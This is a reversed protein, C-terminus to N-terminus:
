HVSEEAAREEREHDDRGQDPQRQLRPWLAFVVVLEVDVNTWCIWCTGVGIWLTTMSGFLCFNLTLSFLPV